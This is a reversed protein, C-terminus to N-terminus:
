ATSIIGEAVFSEFRKRVDHQAAGGAFDIGESGHRPWQTALRQLAVFIVPPDPNAVPTDHVDNVIGRPHDSHGTDGM